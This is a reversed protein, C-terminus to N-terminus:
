GRGANMPNQLQKMINTIGGMGGMHQFIKPDIMKSMQQNLKAMQAPNVNRGAMNGGNFLGKIGGMRKVVAAFKTYQSLLEQVDRVLVGSGKAIRVLRSPQKNILKAGERSDLESDSMSDMITMLKKLKATSEEGKILDPGFGPISELVQNFPGMKMINTFSEYM